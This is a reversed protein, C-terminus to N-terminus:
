AASTVMTPPVLIAQPPEAEKPCGSKADAEAVATVSANPVVAEAANLTPVNM